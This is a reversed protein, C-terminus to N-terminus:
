QPSQQGEQGCYPCPLSCWCSQKCGVSRCLLASLHATTSPLTPAALDPRFRVVLLCNLLLRALLGAVRPDSPWARAVLVQVVEAAEEGGLVEPRSTSRALDLLLLLAAATTAPAPCTVSPRPPLRGPNGQRGAEDSALDGREYYEFMQGGRAALREERGAAAAESSSSGVAEPEFVALNECEEVRAALSLDPFAAGLNRRRRRRGARARRGGRVHRAAQRAFEAAEVMDAYLTPVVTFGQGEEEELLITIFKVLNLTLGESHRAQGVVQTLALMHLLGRDRTLHPALLGFVAAQQAEEVLKAATLAALRPALSPPVAAGAQLTHLTWALLWEGAAEGEEGLRALAAEVGARDEM